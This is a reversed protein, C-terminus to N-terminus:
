EDTVGLITDALAFAAAEVSPCHPSNPDDAIARLLRAVARDYDDTDYWAESQRAAERLRDATM